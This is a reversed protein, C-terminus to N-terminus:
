RFNEVLMLTSVLRDSQAYLLWQRDPAVSLSGVYLLPTKEVVGLQVTQRTAFSFFKLPHPPLVSTHAVYYIGDKTVAWNRWYGAEALEPVPQEAGGATPISRLGDVGRWKSYYLTQGDPSAFAEFGGHRTMQMPPGGAVPLKWIQYDGGRNSCFYIWQGDHSWSPMADHYADTTLRQPTGGTANIMFLEGSQEPRADFVIRQGDPSWRPTGAGAQRMRTLQLPNSGDRDCVWIELSGSRDSVFVIKMGDPSVQPSDEGRKSVILPTFTRSANGKVQQNPPPLELRLISTDDYSETFALMGGRRAVAPSVVDWGVGPLAAPEGGAIPVRWLTPKGARLSSYIIERGDATWDLGRIQRSGTTLQKEDGGQVSVLYLEDATQNSTRVFALQQGDPSFAPQGDDFPAVPKTLPRKAGTEVSILVILSDSSGEPTDGAALWKGDPSWALRSWTLDITCLRREPGGLAPVILIERKGQRFRQFAIYRGDPSWVPATDDADESTLRLPAGVGVLKVYIHHRNGAGGDWSFALQNGDPSFAAYDEHGPLSSFPVPSFPAVSANAARRNLARYVTVGTAAVVALTFTLALAVGLRHRRVEGLIIQASSATSNVKAADTAAAPPRTTAAGQDDTHVARPFSTEFELRHKLDKLDSLLDNSTQHRQERDKSLARAVMQELPQALEPPVAALHPTLPPPEQNLIAGMVEIANVGAFPARGAIMEYLVVGLSFIDTRGDVREGRAQEPSMYSATGMVLGAETTNTLQRNKTSLANEPADHEALKALGFDLVKVLRDRRRMLNEPKIDRHVIGAEHAVGLAGTVQIAVDLAETLTLKAVGLQQRLTQGDVYETVIFHQGGAETQVQGIEHITIINPHNLASAAKAERIFRRVREAEATLGAPLLKLAVRRDLQADEALYVEGMGGKGLLSIVKYRSLQQGILSPPQKGLWDAALDAPPTEFFGGTEEHAALLSEIERRLAVDGACAENLFAARAAAPRELAAHFLEEIQQWREAM